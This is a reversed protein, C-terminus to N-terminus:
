VWNSVLFELMMMLILRAVLQNMFSQRLIMIMPKGLYFIRLPISHLLMIMAKVSLVNVVMSMELLNVIVSKGKPNRTTHTNPNPQERIKSIIM